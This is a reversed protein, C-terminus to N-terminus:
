VVEIEKNLLFRRFCPENLPMSDVWVSVKTTGCQCIDTIIHTKGKYIITMGKKLFDAKIKM